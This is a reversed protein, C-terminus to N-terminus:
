NIAGGEQFSGSRRGPAVQGPSSTVVSPAMLPFFTPTLSVLPFPLFHSHALLPMIYIYHRHGLCVRPYMPTRYACFFAAEAAGPHYRHILKKLRSCTEPSRGEQHM